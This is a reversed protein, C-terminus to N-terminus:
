TKKNASLENKIKSIQFVLNVVNKKIIKSHKKFQKRFRRDDGASIGSPDKQIHGIYNSEQGGEPGYNDVYYDMYSALNPVQYKIHGLEHALVFLAKPVAWIKVSVTGEGYESLYMDKDDKAQGIYTIGWAEVKTSNCPVFKIYVDVPRGNSDVITEIENYIEPAILMFQALLKETLEHYALHNEISKISLIRLNVRLQTYCWKSLM